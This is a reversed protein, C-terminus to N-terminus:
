IDLKSNVSGELVDEMKAVPDAINAIQYVQNRLRNETEGEPM